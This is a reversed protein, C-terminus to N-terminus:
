YLILFTIISRMVQRCNLKLTQIKQLFPKNTRASYFLGVRVGIM